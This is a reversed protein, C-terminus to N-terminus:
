VNGLPEMKVVDAEMTYVNPIYKGLMNLYINRICSELM